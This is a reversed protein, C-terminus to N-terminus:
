RRPWLAVPWQLEAHRKPGDSRLRDPWEDPIAALILATELLASIVPNDAMTEAVLNRRVLNDAGCRSREQFVLDRLWGQNRRDEHPLCLKKRQGVSRGPM